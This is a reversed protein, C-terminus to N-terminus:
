VFMFRFPYDEIEPNPDNIFQRYIRRRELSIDRRTGRDEEKGNLRFLTITIIAREQDTTTAKRQPEIMFTEGDFEFYRHFSYDSEDPKLLKEDFNNNRQQCKSCAVFLNEWLYAILKFISKPRFHDITEQLSRAMPFNDCYSCHDNTMELLLDVLERKRKKGVKWTFEKGSEEYDKGWQEWNELLWEPADIREIKIM